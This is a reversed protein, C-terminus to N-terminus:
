NKLISQISQLKSQCVVRKVNDVLITAQGNELFNLVRCHKSNKGSHYICLTGVMIKEPLNTKMPKLNECNFRIPLNQKSNRLKKVGYFESRKEEEARRAEIDQINGDL